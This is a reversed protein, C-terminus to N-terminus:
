ESTSKGGRALTFRFTSGKGPESEVAIRGGHCEVIKKCIALGIGTGAYEDRKHLRQFMGFIREFHQPDIGIGNDKVAFAWRGGPAPEASVQIKPAGGNQYKIGNGILNQFLQSLQLENALVVPLPGYDIEAGSEAIAGHLNDLAIELARESPVETLPAIHSGVRSYKLLDQILRQMRTAGDVAFHIFEDADADLKGKYRRALLETYSAVM